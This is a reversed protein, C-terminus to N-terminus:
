KRGIIYLTANDLMHRLLHERWYTGLHNEWLVKEGTKSHTLDHLDTPIGVSYTDPPKISVGGNGFARVHAQVINQGQILPHNRIFQAYKKNKFKM